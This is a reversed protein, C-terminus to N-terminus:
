LRAPGGLSSPPCDHLLGYEHSSENRAYRRDEAHIQDHLHPRVHRAVHLHPRHLAREFCSDSQPAVPTVMNSAVPLARSARGSITLIRGTTARACVPFTM